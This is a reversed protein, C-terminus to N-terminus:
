AQPMIKPEARRRFYAQRKKPNTNKKPLHSSRQGCASPDLAAVLHDLIKQCAGIDYHRCGSQQTMTGIVHSRQHRSKSSPQLTM